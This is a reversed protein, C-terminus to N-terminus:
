MRMNWSKSMVDRCLRSGLDAGESVAFFFRRGHEEGPPKYPSGKDWHNVVKQAEKSGLRAAERVAQEHAHQRGGGGGGGSSSESFSGLGWETLRGKCEESGMSAGEQIAAFYPHRHEDVGSPPKYREGSDWCEIVRQCESSGRAAGERVASENPHKRTAGGRTTPM